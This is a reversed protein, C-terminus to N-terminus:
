GQSNRELVGQIRIIIKSLVAAWYDVDDDHFEVRDLWDILSGAAPSLKRAIKIAEFEIAQAEDIWTTADVFDKREGINRHLIARKTIDILDQLTQRRSQDRRNLIAAFAIAAVIGGIANVALDIWFQWFPNM